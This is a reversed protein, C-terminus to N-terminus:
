FSVNIEIGIEDANAGAVTDPGQLKRYCVGARVHRSLVPDLRVGIRSREDGHRADNPDSWEYALKTEMRKAVLWGAEARANWGRKVGRSLETDTLTAHGLFTLPGLSFGSAGGFSVFRREGTRGTGASASHVVNKVPGLDRM